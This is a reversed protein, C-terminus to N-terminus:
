RLEITLKQGRKIKKKVITGQPLELVKKYFPNWFFISNPRINEKMEIVRYDNNLIVVDMAYRMGFTHIGLRTEFFINDPKTQNLMGITKKWFSNLNQAQLIVESDM